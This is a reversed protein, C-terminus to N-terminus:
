SFAFEFHKLEQSQRGRRATGQHWLISGIKTLGPAADARSEDNKLGLASRVLNLVCTSRM